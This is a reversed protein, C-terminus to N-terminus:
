TDKNKNFDKPRSVHKHNNQLIKEIPSKAHIYLLGIFTGNELTGYLEKLLERVGKNNIGCGLFKEPIPNLIDQM